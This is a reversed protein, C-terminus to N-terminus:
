KLRSSRGPAKAARHSLRLCRPNAGFTRHASDLPPEDGSPRAGAAPRGPVRSLKDRRPRCAAGASFSIKAVNAQLHVIGCRTTFSRKKCSRCLNRLHPWPHGPRAAYNRGDAKGLPRCNLGVPLPRCARAPWRPYRIVFAWPSTLCTERHLYAPQRRHAFNTIPPLNQM